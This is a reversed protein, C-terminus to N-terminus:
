HTHGSLSTGVTSLAPKPFSFSFAPLLELSHGGSACHQRASILLSYFWILVSSQCFAVLWHLCNRSPILAALCPHFITQLTAFHALLLAPFGWPGGCSGGRHSSM